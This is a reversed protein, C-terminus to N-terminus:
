KLDKKERKGKAHYRLAANRVKYDGLVGSGPRDWALFRAPCDLPLFSKRLRKAIFVKQALGKVM